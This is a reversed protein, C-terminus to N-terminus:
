VEFFFRDGTKALGMGEEVGRNYEGRRNKGATFEPFSSVLGDDIRPASFPWTNRSYCLDEASLNSFFRSIRGIKRM